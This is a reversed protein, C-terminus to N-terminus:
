SISFCKDYLFAFELEAKNKEEYNQLNQFNCFSCLTFVVHFITSIFFYIKKHVIFIGQASNPLFTILKNAFLISANLPFRLLIINSHFLVHCEIM